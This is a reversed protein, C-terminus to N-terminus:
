YQPGNLSPIVGLHAKLNRICRDIEFHARIFSTNRYNRADGDPYARAVSLSSLVIFTSVLAIRM